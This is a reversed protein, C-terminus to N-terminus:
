EEDSEDESDEDEQMYDFPDYGSLHSGLLEEVKAIFDQDESKVTIDGRDLTGSVESHKGLIEGFYVEKGYAKELVDKEVVFLGDVEGQRGCDWHFKVLLKM